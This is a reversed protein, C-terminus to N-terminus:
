KTFYAPTPEKGREGNRGAAHARVLRLTDACLFL